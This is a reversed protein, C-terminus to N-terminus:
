RWRFIASGIGLFVVSLTLLVTLQPALQALGAGEILIARLGDVVHTLPMLQAGRLVWPSAGELSFWIGSLFIMPWTMLNLLGQIGMKEKFDRGVPQGHFLVQGATPPLIGEIMELTTTKGAGNPGLLGFCSGVRISLELGDVATLDKYRKTLRRTELINAM